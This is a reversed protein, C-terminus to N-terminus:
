EAERRRVLQAPLRARAAPEALRDAARQILGYLLVAILAAVGANAVMLVRLGEGFSAFLFANWHPSLPGNLYLIDGYLATGRAIQWPVYLERGFDILSDPGHPWSWRLVGAGIGFILLPGLWPLLPAVRHALDNGFFERPDSPTASDDERVTELPPARGAHTCAPM